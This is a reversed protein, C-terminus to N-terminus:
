CLFIDIRNKQQTSMEPDKSVEYSYIHYYNQITLLHYVWVHQKNHVQGKLPNRASQAQNNIEKKHKNNKRKHELSYLWLLFTHQILSEDEM